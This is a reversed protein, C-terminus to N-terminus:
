KISILKGKFDYGEVKGNLYHVFYYIGGKTWDRFYKPDRDVIPESYESPVPDGADMYTKTWRNGCCSCDGFGDFYLGIQEARVNAHVSDVAEIIVCISIGAKENIDFSGGSNNQTFSYFRTEVKDMKKISEKPAVLCIVLISTSAIVVGEM